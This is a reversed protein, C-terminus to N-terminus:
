VGNISDDISGDSDNTVEEYDKCRGNINKFDPHKRFVPGLWNEYVNTLHTCRESIGDIEYHQCAVCKPRKEIRMRPM